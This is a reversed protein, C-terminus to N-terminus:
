KKRIPLHTHITLEANTGATAHKCNPPCTSEMQLERKYPKYQLHLSHILRYSHPHFIRKQSIATLQTDGPLKYPGPEDSGETKRGRYYVIVPVGTVWHSESKLQTSIIKNINSIFPFHNSPGSSSWTTFGIYGAVNLKYDINLNPEQVERHLALFRM